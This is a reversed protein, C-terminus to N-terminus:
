EDLLKKLQGYLYRRASIGGKWAWPSDGALSIAHDLSELAIQRLHDYWQDLAHDRDAVLKNIFTWFHPELEIWFRGLANWQTVLNRRNSPDPKGEAGRQLVHEALTNLANRLKGAIDEAQGLRAEIDAAYEANRLLELPLPMVERRYFIPKGKDALMGTAILRTPYDDDLPGEQILASLWEVVAPPRYGKDSKPLLTYYSRWLAKDERFSLYRYEGTFEGKEKKKEHRKQPRPCIVDSILNFAPAAVYKRVVVREGDMEPILRIRNNSWTLYDLYGFPLTEPIKKINPRQDTQDALYDRQGRTMSRRAYFHEMEWAPIDEDTRKQPMTGEDSYEVLNLLLTEFLNTGCAWFIVGRSFISDTFGPGYKTGWPGPGGIKFYRAAILQRAAEAPSLKVGANDTIHNFLTDTNKMPHVIHILSKSKVRNDFAQYFPRDPHFLDFRGRWKEFYADLREMDFEGAEWLANWEDYDEPGFVRHLIALALPLIAASQVPTECSIERIKHAEAFLGRLSVDIFKGESAICPIWKEDILNFTFNM